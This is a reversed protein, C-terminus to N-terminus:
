IFESDPAITMTGEGIIATTPEAVSKAQAAEPAPAATTSAATQPAPITPRIRGPRGGRLRTTYQAAYTPHTGLIANSGSRLAGTEATIFCLFFLTLFLSNM